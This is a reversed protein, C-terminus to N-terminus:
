SPRKLTHFIDDSTMAVDGDASLPPCVDEILAAFYIDGECTAEAPRSRVIRKHFYVSSGSPNM